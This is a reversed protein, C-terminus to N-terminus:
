KGCEPCAMYCSDPYEASEVWAGIFAGCEPCTAVCWSSRKGVCCDEVKWKARVDM